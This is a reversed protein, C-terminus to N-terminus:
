LNNMNKQILNNKRDSYIYKFYQYYPSGIALSKFLEKLAGDLQQGSHFVLCRTPTLPLLLVKTKKIFNWGYPWKCEPDEIDVVVCGTDPLIFFFPDDADIITKTKDFLPKIVLSGITILILKIIAQSNDLKQSLFKDIDVKEDILKKFYNQVDEDKIDLSNSEFIKRLKEKGENSFVNRPVKKVELLYLVYVKIQELFAPTRVYQFAAHMALINEELSILKTNTNVLFSRLVISAFKESLNAFLKKEIYNSQRGDSQKTTSYFNKINAAEKRISTGKSPVTKNKEYQYIEGSESHIKFNDLIFVPIYHNREDKFHTEVYLKNDLYQYASFLNYFRKTLFDNDIRKEIFFYFVKEIFLNNYKNIKNKLKNTLSLSM